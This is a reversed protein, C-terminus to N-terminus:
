ELRMRGTCEIEGRASTQLRVTIDLTRISGARQYSGVFSTDLYPAPAVGEGSLTASLTTATEDCETVTLPGSILVDTDRTGPTVLMARALRYDYDSVSAFRAELSLAFFGCSNEDSFLEGSWRQRGIQLGPCYTTPGADPRTEPGSDVIGSDAIGSDM